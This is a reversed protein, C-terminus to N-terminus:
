GEHCTRPRARVRVCICIHKWTSMTLVTEPRARSQGMVLRSFGGLEHRGKNGWPCQSCSNVRKRYQFCSRVRRRDVAPKKSQCHLCLSVLLGSYRPSGPIVLIGDVRSLTWHNQALNDKGDMGVEIQKKGQDVVAAQDVTTLM